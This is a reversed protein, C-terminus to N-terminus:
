IDELLHGLITELQESRSAKLLVMDGCHLENCLIAAAEKKELGLKGRCSMQRGAEGITLVHEFHLADIFEGLARHEKESQKGLERMAGLVAFKRGSCPLEAFTSLASRMSLPNANYADNVFIVGDRETREWRMPGPSFADLGRQIEEAPLGFELGITAAFRANQIMHKGPFSIHFPENTLTLVSGAAQAKIRDFWPSSNDLLARCAHRLLAAKEDAIEELGRFFEIHAKGINTVIGWDPRLLTALRDMEGPHNMGLEFVFLDSNRDAALMSLPLGISNNWNGITKAVTGKQLLVSATMEKVTTKGASGTIGIVIGAWENRV